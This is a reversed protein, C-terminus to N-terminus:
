GGIVVALRRGAREAELRWPLPRERLIAERRAMDTECPERADPRGADRKACAASARVARAGAAVSLAASRGSV